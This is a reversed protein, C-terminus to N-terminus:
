SLVLVRVQWRNMLSKKVSAYSDASHTSHITFCKYGSLLCYQACSVIMTMGLTLTLTLHCICIDSSSQDTSLKFTCPTCVQEVFWPTLASYVLAIAKEGNTTVILTDWCYQKFYAMKPSPFQLAANIFTHTMGEVRDLPPLRITKHPLAKAFESIDRKM